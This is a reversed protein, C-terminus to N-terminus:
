RFMGRVPNWVESSHRTLYIVGFLRDLCFGWARVFPSLLLSDGACIEYPENKYPENVVGGRLRM